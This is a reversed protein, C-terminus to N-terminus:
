LFELFVEDETMEGSKVKPHFKTNYVGKLDEITIYGSGDADFKNFAKDTVDMRTSNMSGRIAILFEDFNISGTNDNDFNQM